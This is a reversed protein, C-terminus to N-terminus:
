GEGGERRAAVRASVEALTGGNFRLGEVVRAARALADAQTFRCRKFFGKTRSSPQPEYEWEGKRNLCQGLWRVAWTDERDNTLTVEIAWMGRDINVADEYGDPYVTFTTPRSTAM